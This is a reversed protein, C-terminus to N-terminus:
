FIFKNCKSSCFLTQEHAAIDSLFYVHKLEKLLSYEDGFIFVKDFQYFPVFHNIKEINLM